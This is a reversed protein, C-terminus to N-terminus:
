TFFCPYVLGFKLDHLPVEHVIHPNERGWHRNNQSNVYTSSTFWAKDSCFTPRLELHLLRNFVSEQVQKCYLSRAECDPLLFDIHPQLKVKADKHWCSCYAKGVWLSSGFSKLRAESQTCIDTKRWHMHIKKTMALETFCLKAIM